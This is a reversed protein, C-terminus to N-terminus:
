NKLRNDAFWAVLRRMGEELLITPQWDLLKKAKSIDACTMEVSASHSPRMQRDAKKGTIKELTALLELLSVPQNDGINIIEFGLPKEMAKITALAVDGVYTYDRKRSGDGSIEVKGGRLLAETWVYPVMGPRNNEGYANFYRLCTINLSFNHHYSYAFMEMARKTAGYPSLPKDAIEEENWPFINTNGYVSSSSAMVVNKVKMEKALDLVNLSGAINVEVYQLPDTVANRTDALAALHIVYKPNEEGFVKRLADKDRIDVRELRFSKNSLFPAINEEKYKPDYVTNFNDVCVVRYDDALLKRIVHSGIFGAGGTVLVTNM